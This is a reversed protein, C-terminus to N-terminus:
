VRLGEAFREGLEKLTPRPLRVGRLGLQRLRGLHPSALLAKLGAEGIQGNYSLDLRRLKGLGACEALARVGDDGLRNNALDLARLEGIHPSGPLLAAASDTMENGRLDLERLRALGPWGALHAMARRGLGTNALSLYTLGTLYPSGVLAPPGNVGLSNGSVDLATLGKLGPAAALAQLGTVGISCNAVELRRLNGLHPSAALQQTGPVRLLVNSLSLRRLAALGPWGVLTRVANENLYAGGLDLDELRFPLEARTLLALHRGALTASLGLVKLNALPAAKVLAQMTDAAAATGGLNLSALGTLHPSAVLTAVLDDSLSSNAVDLGRLRRLLDCGAVAKAGGQTQNLRLLKLDRLPTTRFVKAGRTLFQRAGMGAQEVFGRRFAATSLGELPKLWESGRAALLARERDELADRREDDEALGALAVQVRIFEARDKEAPGGNEELWDAYVLRPADDDPNDCIDQLISDQVKVANGEIATGTAPLCQEV